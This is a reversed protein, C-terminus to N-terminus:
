RPTQEGPRGGAAGSRDRLDQGAPRLVPVVRDALRMSLPFNAADLWVCEGDLQMPVRGAYEVEVARASRMVVNPEGVHLGDYFLKKLRVKGFLGLRDIACFNEAGPLVRKGGGYERGGSVGLAVIMFRSALREAGASGVDAAPHITLRMEGAGVVREYLLTMVDAILKYLDGRFRKKLRNTLWAVYADLGVSAINFARFEPMGVPQAVVHGAYERRADGLLLRVAAGLTPADAGDNGTGLPLRVFTVRDLTRRDVGDRAAATLVEAHTGDGGLSCVLRAGTTRRGLISAAIEGAHGVYHTQHLELAFTGAPRPEGRLGATVAELEALTAEARAPTSFSGAEPNVILHAELHEGAHLTSLAFVREFCVRVQELLTM